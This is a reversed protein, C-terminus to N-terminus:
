DMDQGSAPTSSERQWHLRDATLFGRRAGCTLCFKETGRTLYIEGCVLLHFYDEGPMRSHCYEREWTQKIRAEWGEPQIVYLRRDASHVQNGDTEPGSSEEAAM